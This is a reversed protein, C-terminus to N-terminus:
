QEKDAIDRPQLVLGAQMAESDQVADVVRCDECMQLRRRARESAFM